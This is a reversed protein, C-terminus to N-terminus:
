LAFGIRMGLLYAMGTYGYSFMNNNFPPKNKESLSYRFGLGCYIDFLCFKGTYQLGLYTNIGMRNINQTRYDLVYAHYALGDETYNEWSYGWYDIKLHTYSLGVAFYPPLAPNFFQKYNVDLGGGRVKSFPERLSIYRWGRFHYDNEDYYYSPNNNNGDEYRKGYYVAPGFQLWGLGDGLRMEFDFRWKYRQLPQMAFTYKKQMMSQSLDDSIEQAQINIVAFLLLLSYLSKKM